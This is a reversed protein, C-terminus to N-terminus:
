TQNTKKLFNSLQHIESPLANFKLRNARWSIIQVNEPIYGKNPDIRDISPSYDGKSEWKNGFVPDVYLWDPNIMDNLKINFEIGSRKCNGRTMRLKELITKKFTRPIEKFQKQTMGYKDLFHKDNVEKRKNARVKMGTKTDIGNEYLINYVTNRALGFRNGISQMTMGQCFLEIIHSNRQQKDM